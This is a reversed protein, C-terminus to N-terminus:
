VRALDALAAVAEALDDYVLRACRASALPGALAALADADLRRRESYASELIATLAEVPDIAELRARQGPRRALAVFATLRRPERPALAAPLWYRVRQGDSRVAVPAELLGPAYRAALTWAGSKVAAAFPVGHARGDADFRVIDDGGYAWGSGALALSLTTKGAGPEGNLMLAADGRVLLAGHALFGDQPAAVYTETLVAKLHAPFDEEASAGLAQGERLVFVLDDDRVIALRSPAAGGPGYLHGFIADCAAVPADAHFVLEVSLEDLRLSRVADPPDDLRDVVAHPLLLGGTTWDRLADRVHRHAHDASAGIAELAHAVADPADGRVLARWILDATPNLEYLQQRAESFLLRRGGLPLRRVGAAAM